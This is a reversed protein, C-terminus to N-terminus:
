KDGIINEHVHWVLSGVMVTGIYKNFRGMVNKFPHGTGIIVITREAVITNNSDIKAWLTVIDNQNQVTLIEADSPMEISQVNTVKLQYKYIYNM